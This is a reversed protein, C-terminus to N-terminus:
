EEGRLAKRADDVTQTLRSWSYQSSKSGKVKIEPDQVYKMLAEIAMAVTQAQSETFERYQLMIVDDLPHESDEMRIGIIYRKKEEVTKIPKIVIGSIGDKVAAGISEFKEGKDNTYTDSM